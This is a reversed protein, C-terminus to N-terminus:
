RFLEGVSRGFLLILLKISRIFLLIDTKLSKTRSYIIDSKMWSIFPKTHYGDLIWPSIIGPKVVHRKFQTATLKKTESLPLPRPGILAMEGRLVNWLQPLEDFGAHSFFKGIRTFRPDNRIKFVPGDAENQKRLQSQLREAGIKMTRFKYMVFVKGNKGVRKQRFFVPSGNAIFVTVACLVQLPLSIFLLLLVFLYYMCGNQNQKNYQYVEIM